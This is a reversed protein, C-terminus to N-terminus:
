RARREREDQSRGQDTPTLWRATGIRGAADFALEVVREGEPTRLELRGADNGQAAPVVEVAGQELLDRHWAAVAHRGTVTADGAGFTLLSNEAFLDAALGADGDALAAAYADMV